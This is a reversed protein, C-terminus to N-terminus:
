YHFVLITAEYKSQDIQLVGIYTGVPAFLGRETDGLWTHRHTGKTEAINVAISRILSYYGSTDKKQISISLTSATSLSYQIEANKTYSDFASPTFRLNTVLLSADVSTPLKCSSFLCIVVVIFLYNVHNPTLWKRQIRLSLPLFFRKRIRFHPRLTSRFSQPIIINRIVNM